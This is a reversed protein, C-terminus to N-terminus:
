PANKRNLEALVTDLVPYGLLCVGQQFRYTAYQSCFSCMQLHLLTDIVVLFNVGSMGRECYISSYRACSHSFINKSITLNPYTWKPVLTVAKYFM